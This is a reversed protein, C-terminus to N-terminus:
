LSDYRRRFVTLMSSYIREHNIPSQKNYVISIKDEIKNDLFDIATIPSDEGEKYNVKLSTIDERGRFRQLFNIIGSKLTADKKRSGVSFKITVRGAGFIDDNRVVDKIGEGSLDICSIECGRIFVGDPIEKDCVLPTFRFLCQERGIKLQIRNFYSEVKNASVSFFNRQVGIFHKKPSYIITMDEGIYEDSELPLETYIGTTTIKGPLAEDRIKVFCLKWHDGRNQITQLQIANHIDSNDRVEMEPRDMRIIRDQESLNALISLLNELRNERDSVLRNESDAIDVNYYNVKVTAVKNPM